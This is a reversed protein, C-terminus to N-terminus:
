CPNPAEVPFLENVIPLKLSNASNWVIDSKNWQNLKDLAPCNKQLQNQISYRLNSLSVWFKERTKVDKRFRTILFNWRTTTCHRCLFTCFITICTCLEQKTLWFSTSIQRERQRRQQKLERIIVPYSQAFEMPLVHLLGCHAHSIGFYVITKTTTPSKPNSQTKCLCSLYSSQGIVIHASNWIYQLSSPAFVHLRGTGFFSPFLRTIKNKDRVPQSNGDLWLACRRMVLAVVFYYNVQRGTEKNFMKALERFNRKSGFLGHLIMLPPLDKGAANADFNDYALRM